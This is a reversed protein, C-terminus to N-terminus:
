RKSLKLSWAFQEAELKPNSHLLRSLLRDTSIIRLDVAERKGLLIPPIKEWGETKQRRCAVRVAYRGMSHFPVGCIAALPSTADALYRLDGSIMREGYVKPKPDLSKAFRVAARTLGESRPFIAALQAAEIGRMENELALSAEEAAKDLPYDEDADLTIERPDFLNSERLASLIAESRLKTSSNNRSWSFSFFFAIRKGAGDCQVENLERLAKEKNICLEALLAGTEYYDQSISAHETGVTVIHYEKRLKQIDGYVDDQREFLIIVADESPKLDQVSAVLIGKKKDQTRDALRATGDMRLDGLRDELKLGLEEAMAAAGRMFDENAENLWDRGLVVIRKFEPKECFLVYERIKIKFQSSSGGSGVWPVRNAGLRRAAEEFFANARSMATPVSEPLRDDEVTVVEGELGTWQESLASILDVIAKSGSKATHVSKHRNLKIYKVLGNFLDRNIQNEM